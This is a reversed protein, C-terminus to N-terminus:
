QEVLLSDLMKGVQPKRATTGAKPGGGYVRLMDRIKTKLKEDETIEYITRLYRVALDRRGIGIQLAAALQVVIIPADPKLAADQIDEVAGVKNNQFFLRIFGRYYPMEWRDPQEVTGKELLDLAEEYRGAMLALNMAGQVYPTIFHPDLRTVIDLMRYLYRGDESGINWYLSGQLLPHKRFDLELFDVSDPIQEVPRKSDTRHIDKHDLKHNHHHVKEHHHGHHHHPVGLYEHYADHFRQASIYFVSRIWLLDAATADDGLALGHLVRWDPVYLLESQAAREEQIAEVRHQLLLLVWFSAAVLGGWLVISTYKRWLTM